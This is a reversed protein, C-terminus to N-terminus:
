YALVADALAGKREITVIRRASDYKFPEPKGDVTLSKPASPSCLFAREAFRFALTNGAFEGSDISAGHDITGDTYLVGPNEAPKVVWLKARGPDVTGLRLKGGSAAVVNAEGSLVDFVAASAGRYAINVLRADKAGIALVCDRGAYVRPDSPDPLDIGCQEKVVSRVVDAKSELPAFNVFVWKGSDGIKRILMRPYSKGSPDTVKGSEATRVSDSVLYTLSEGALKMDQWWFHRNDRGLLTPGSGVGYADLIVTGGKLAYEFLKQLIELSACPTSSHYVVAKFRTLDVCSPDLVLEAESVAYADVLGAGDKEPESLIHLVSPRNVSFRGAFPALEPIARLAPDVGAIKSPEGPERQLVLRDYDFCAASVHPLLRLVRQRSADPNGPVLKIDAAIVRKGFTAAICDLVPVAEASSTYLVNIGKRSVLVSADVGGKGASDVGPGTLAKRSIVQVGSCVRDVFDAYSDALWLDVLRRKASDALDASRFQPVQEWAQYATGFASNFTASDTDTDSAPSNDHFLKKLFARWSAAAGDDYSGSGLAVGATFRYGAPSKLRNAMAKAVREARYELEPLFIDGLTFASGFYARSGNELTPRDDVGFTDSEFGLIRECEPLTAPLDWYTSVGASKWAAAVREWNPWNMSQGRMSLFACGVGRQSLFPAECASQAAKVDALASSVGLCQAYGEASTLLLVIAAAAFLRM